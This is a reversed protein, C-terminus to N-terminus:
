QVDERILVAFSSNIIGHHTIGSAHICCGGKTFQINSKWLKRLELLEEKSEPIIDICDILPERRIKAKM